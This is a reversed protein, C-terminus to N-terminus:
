TSLATVIIKLLVYRFLNLRHLTVYDKHQLLTFRLYKSFFLIQSRACCSIKSRCMKFAFSCTMKVIFSRYLVRFGDLKKIDALHRYLM